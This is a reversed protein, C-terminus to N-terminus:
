GVRMRYAGGSRYLGGLPVGGSAAELDDAYSEHLYIPGSASRGITNIGIAACSRAPSGVFSRVYRWMVGGDSASAVMHTPPAFGTVGARTSVYIHLGALRYIGNSAIWEGPTWPLYAVGATRIANFQTAIEQDDDLVNGTVTNHQGTGGFNASIGIGAWKGGERGNGICANGAAVNHSGWLWLGARMNRYCVNDGVTNRYGTVSIGNDGTNEAHNGLIRNLYADHTVGVLEIANALTTNAEVLNRNAGEGLRVGFGSYRMILNRTIENNAAGSIGIATSEGDLMENADVQNFRTEAGTLLISGAPAGPCGLFRSQRISCRRAGNRLTIISESPSLGIDGEIALGVIHADECGDFDFATGTTLCDMLIRPRGNGARITFGSPMKFTGHMRYPREGEDLVVTRFGSAITYDLASKLDEQWRPDFAM